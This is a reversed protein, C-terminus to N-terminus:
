PPPGMNDPSQHRFYKEYLEAYLGKRGLLDEHVGEEAIRGKDLVIIKDAQRLTSLRRAIVVSTRGAMVSRLGEQIRVEAVPDAAPGDEDIICLAPNKLLTRALAILLGLAPAPPRAREVPTALEDPLGSMWDGRGLRAAAALVEEDSAAASGHRINERITGEILFARRPLFDVRRRYEDLDLTRIDRGDVYIEGEEYEYLRVLLRAFAGLDPSPSSLAALKQGGPIRLSLDDLITEGGASFRLNKLKLEGRMDKVILSSSQRVGPERELLARIREWAARAERLRGPFDPMDRVAPWALLLVCMFLYLNGASLNEFIRSGGLFACLALLGGATCIMLPFLSNRVFAGRFGARCARRATDQFTKLLFDGGGHVAASGAARLQGAFEPPV